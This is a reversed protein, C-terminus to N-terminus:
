RGAQFRIQSGLQYGVRHIDIDSKIVIGEMNVIIDGGGGAGALMRNSQANTYIQAGSPLIAQDRPISILERGRENIHVGGGATYSAGVANFPNIDPIKPVWGLLSNVVDQFTQVWTPVKFFDEIQTKLTALWEPTKFFNEVQTKLTALWDPSKLWDDVISQITSIWDAAETWTDVIDKLIGVWDTEKVWNDVIAKITALWAPTAKIVDTVAKLSAIWAPNAAITDATKKLGASWAPSNTWASKLSTVWAPETFGLKIDGKVLGSIWESLSSVKDIVGQISTAAAEFGLDKLTNVITAGIISFISSVVIYLNGLSTKIFEWLSVVIAKASEWAAAWNGHILSSVGTVMNSVVTTLTNFGVALTDVFAKVIPALNAFTAGLLNFAAIAIVGIAISIIQAVQWMASIFSALAPLAVGIFANIRDIFGNFVRTAVAEFLSLVPQVSAWLNQFSQGMGSIQTAFVTLGAILRQVSPGFISVLANWVTQIVSIAISIVSSATSVASAIAAWGTTFTQQLTTLALPINVYLWSWIQILLPGVIGWATNIATSISSWANMATVQLTLLATSLNATLWTSLQAVLPQVIGWAASITTQIAGWANMATVQLTLLAGPLATLLQDKWATLTPSIAAWVALTKEQIGGFNSAWAAALLGVGIVILGLPSFIFGLVAGVGAIALMAPGAAALVALFALAANRIAPSVSGLSTIFDGLMKPYESLTDLFPLATGILFSDISGKLYEISGSFGKMRANAADSAASENGVAKAMNDWGTAGEKLLINAARLADSGFLTYLAANRTEDTMQVTKTITKSQVGGLATYAAQAAALTRNLRDVAVVKDNESQAVGAVGTQYDKLKQQTNAIITAYHQAEKSNASMAGANKETITMTGHLGKQLDVLIDPLPRMKGSADYVNVGMQKMLGAAEETPAALRSLMTKLSTGADSGKIGNNGLLAIAIAATEISQGYSAAVASAQSMSQAMDTVEISSANAAAAFLNAVDKAKSAPLHFSNLANSAIEAAQGVDLGGAAALDLVGPMAAMIDEAKMGSKSLELMGKAAEGASFSTQAGLDLAQQQMRAMQDGTAGSVTQMINMSQQFDAASSIATTAIGLLPATVGLSLMTGASKLKSALGSISDTAQDTGIIIEGHASGLSVGM